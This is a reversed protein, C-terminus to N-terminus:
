IHIETVPDVPHQVDDGPRQSLGLSHQDAGTFRRLARSFQRFGQRQILAKVAFGERLARFGYLEGNCIVANDNLYFPQMGEENLGMISLRNFGIYGKEVKKYRSMDPGRLSTRQLLTQFEQESIDDGEYTLIACM